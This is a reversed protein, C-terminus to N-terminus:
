VHPICTAKALGPIFHLALFPTLSNPVHFVNADRESIGAAIVSDVTDPQPNVLFIPVM